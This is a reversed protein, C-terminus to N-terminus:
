INKGINNSQRDDKILELKLEKKYPGTIKIITFSLGCNNCELKEPFKQLIDQDIVINTDCKICSCMYKKHFVKKLTIMM